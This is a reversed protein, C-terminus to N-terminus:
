HVLEMQNPSDSANEIIDNYQIDPTAGGIDFYEGDSINLIIKNVYKKSCQAIENNYELSLEM